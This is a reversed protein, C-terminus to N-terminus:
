GDNRGIRYLRHPHQIDGRALIRGAEHFCVFDIGFVPDNMTDLSYFYFFAAAFAVLFVSSLTIARDRPDSNMIM